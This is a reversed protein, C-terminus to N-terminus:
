ITVTSITASLRFIGMVERTASSDTPDRPTVRAASSMRPLTAPPSTIREAWGKEMPSRDRICM